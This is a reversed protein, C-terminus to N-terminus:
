RECAPRAPTTMADLLTRRRPPHLRRLDEQVGLSPFRLPRYDIAPLPKFSAVGEAATETYKAYGQLLCRSPCSDRNECKTAPVGHGQAASSRRGWAAARSPGRRAAPNAPPANHFPGPPPPCGAVTLPFPHGDDILSQSAGAM